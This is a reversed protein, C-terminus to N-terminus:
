SYRNQGAEFSWAASSRRSKESASTKDIETSAAANRPKLSNWFILIPFFIEQTPEARNRRFVIVLLNEEESIIIVDDILLRYLNM